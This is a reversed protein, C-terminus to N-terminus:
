CHTDSLPEIELATQIQALLHDDMEKRWQYHGGSPSKEKGRNTPRNISHRHNYSGRGAARMGLSTVLLEACV